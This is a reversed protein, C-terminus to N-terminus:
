MKMGKRSGTTVDQEVNETNHSSHHALETLTNLVIPANDAPTNSNDSYQDMNRVLLKNKKLYILLTSIASSTVGTIRSAQGLTDPQHENLLLKIESSLVNIQSYDFPQPLQVNAMDKLKKVEDNQLKIYGEYKAFIEVQDIIQAGVKQGFQATLDARSFITKKCSASFLDYLLDFSVNPRKIIELLNADQKIDLGAKALLEPSSAMSSNVYNSKLQDELVKVAAQKNCFKEWREDDVLGLKRGIPTMRVDANDQRLNLRYEARSSLMRYPETIGQTTLDDVLVGIYTNHRQPIWPELGKIKLACNIGAVAGLAMAESYGSTGLPTSIFLNEIHKFELTQKFSRPDFYDYEIAYGPRTIVANELGKISRIAQLQIDFPLSTSIGNPYYENTTMGEPELIIQHSMKDAFRTIKDEISPCYRPGKGEFKDQIFPSRDFGSRLIEHTKENTNTVWCPLQQAYPIKDDTMTFTPLPEVINGSADVGDGWKATLQSFDISNGDIRPPTGTKMRGMPLKLEKLKQALTVSAAEGSRGGSFNDMGVHMKGNLFTGGCLIVSKSKIKIGLNTVIGVAKNDEIIVDEVTQQFISLNPLKQLRDIVAAKYLHKDIVAHNSQMAPGKSKNLVTVNTSALDACNAPITLNLAWLEKVIQARSIGGLNVNCSLKSINDLDPTVMLTKVGMLSCAQAATTAAHGGGIIIVDYEEPYNM